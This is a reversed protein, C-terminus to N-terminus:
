RDRRIFLAKGGILSLAALLVIPLVHLPETLYHQLGVGAPEDGHGPHAWALVPLSAIVVLLVAARM